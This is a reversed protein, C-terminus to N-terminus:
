KPPQNGSVVIVDSSGLCRQLTAIDESALAVVVASSKGDSEEALIIVDVLSTQPCSNETDRPTLTISAPYGPQILTLNHDPVPLSLALYTRSPDTIPLSVWSGLIATGSVVDQLMFRGVLDEKDQFTGDIQKRTGELLDAETLLHFAPLDKAAYVTPVSTLPQYLWTLTGQSVHYAFLALIILLFSLLALGLWNRAMWSTNKGEAEVLAQSKLLEVLRVKDIKTKRALEDIGNNYDVGIHEWMKTITKIGLQSLAQCEQATIGPIKEISTM